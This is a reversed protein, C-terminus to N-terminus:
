ATLHPPTDVVSVEWTTRNTINGTGQNTYQVYWFDKNPNLPNGQADTPNYTADDYNDPIKTFLYVWRGNYPRYNPHSVCDAQGQWCLNYNEYTVPASGANPTGAATATAQAQAQEAIWPALQGAPIAAPTPTLYSPAYDSLTPCSTNAHLPDFPNDEAVTQGYAASGPPSIGLAASQDPSPCVPKNSGDVPPSSYIPYNAGLLGAGTVNSFQTTAISNIGGSTVAMGALLPSSFQPQNQQLTQSYFPPSWNQGDNSCSATLTVTGNATSRSISVSIPAPVTGPAPGSSCTKYAVPTTTPGNDGNRLQVGVQNNPTVAVFLNAAGPNSSTRLMLGAKASTNMNYNQWYVTATISGDGQMTQWVYHFSDTSGGGTPVGIDPGPGSVSYTSSRDDYSQSGMPTPIPYGIDACSWGAVCPVSTSTPTALMGAPMMSRDARTLHLAAVRMTPGHTPQLPAAAMMPVPPPLLLGVEVPIPTNTPTPTVTPPVPTPTVTPPVPTPTNTATPAPTFTQTPTSTPAPTATNTATPPIPTITPTPTNTSTPPVPTNTSTPPVPTNTATPIAAQTATQQAATTATQRAAATPTGPPTTATNTPTNTSTATNTPTSTSTATSTNTPTNTNTSTPGPTFTRTATSTQTPTSTNTPTPAPTFTQTPTSTPGPTWTATATPPISTASPPVPTPTASPPVPTPTATSFDIGHAPFSTILSTSGNNQMTTSRDPHGPLRIIAGSSDLTQTFWEFPAYSGDPRVIQISSGGALNGPNFMKVVLWKGKYKPAVKALYILTKGPAKVYLSVRGVGGVEPQPQSAIASSLPIPDCNRDGNPPPCYTSESTQPMTIARLAFNDVQDGECSQYGNVVPATRHVPDLCTNVNVIYSSGPVTAVKALTYWQDTYPDTGTYVRTNSLTGYNVNPAGCTLGAVGPPPAIMINTIASSAYLPSYQTPDNFPAAQGSGSPSVLSGHEPDSNLHVKNGKSDLYTLSYYTVDNYPTNAAPKLRSYDGAPGTADASLATRDNTAPLGYDLYYTNDKYHSGVCTGADYVQIYTDDSISVTSTPITVKYDYGNFSRIAPTYPNTSAVASTPDRWPNPILPTTTTLPLFPPDSLVDIPSYPDGTKTFQDPGNISLEMGQSLPATGVITGGSGNPMPGYTNILATPDGLTSSPNEMPVSPSYRATSRRALSVSRFGLISGLLLPFGPERVDVTVQEAGSADLSTTVSPQDNAPLRLNRAVMDRAAAAAEAQGGTGAAVAASLAAEDAARQLRTGEVFVRSSDIGLCIGALLVILALALIVAVQGRGVTRRTHRGRITGLSMHRTMASDEREEALMDGDDIWPRM